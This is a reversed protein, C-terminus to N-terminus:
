RNEAIRRVRVAGVVDAQRLSSARTQPVPEYDEFVQNGWKQRVEAEQLARPATAVSRRAGHGNPAFADVVIEWYPNV